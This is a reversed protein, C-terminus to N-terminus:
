HQLRKGAYMKSARHQIQLPLPFPLSPFLLSLSLQQFPLFSHSLLALLSLVSSSYLLTSCVLFALVFAFASCLLFLLSSILLASAGLSHHKSAKYAVSLLKDIKKRNPWADWDPSKKGVSFQHTEIELHPATDCSSGKEAAM